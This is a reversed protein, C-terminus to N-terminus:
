KKRIHLYKTWEYYSDSVIVGDPVDPQSSEGTYVRFWFVVDSRGSALSAARAGSDINVFEINLHLRKGIEALIATNFGAPTGDAAIFDIPPLDGTVAVKITEAGDFKEFTVPKLEGVGPNTLYDAHLLPLTGDEKMAKLAGNFKERLAAGDKERFGFVFSVPQFTSIAAISYDPNANIMFEGVVEPLDIEDVEGKNLGLQMATMSDYFVFFAPEKDGASFMTWLGASLAAEMYTQFEEQTVNLQTLLGVNHVRAASTGVFLMVLALVCLLKRM